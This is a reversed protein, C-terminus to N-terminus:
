KLLECNANRFASESSSRQLQKMEDFSAGEIQPWNEDYVTAEIRAWLAGLQFETTPGGTLNLTLGMPVQSQAERSLEGRKAAELFLRANEYGLFFLREFEDTDDGALASLAACDWASFALQGIRVIGEEASAQIPGFSSVAFALLAFRRPTSKNSM